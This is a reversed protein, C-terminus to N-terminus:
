GDTLGNGRSVGPRHQGISGDGDATAAVIVDVPNKRVAGLPRRVLKWEVPLPEGVLVLLLEDVRRPNDRVRDHLNSVRAIGDRAVTTAAAVGTTAVSGPTTAGAAADRRRSLLPADLADLEDRQRLNGVVVRRNALVRRDGIEIAIEPNKGGRRRLRLVSLKHVVDHVRLFS